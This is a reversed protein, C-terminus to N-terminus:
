PNSTPPQYLIAKEWAQPIAETLWWEWFKLRKEPDFRLPQYNSRFRSYKNWWVGPKNKDTSIYARVAMAAFDRQGYSIEEDKIPIKNAWFGLGEIGMLTVELADYAAACACYVKEATTQELIGIGDYFRGCLQKFAENAEVTKTLVGAAVELMQAPNDGNGDSEPEELDVTQLWIPLVKQATLIALWGFAKDALSLNLEDPLGLPNSFSKNTQFQNLSHHSPGFSKYINLRDIPSLRHELDNRVVELYQEILRQIEAPLEM